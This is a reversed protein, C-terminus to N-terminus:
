TRTSLIARAIELLIQPDKKWQIIDLAGNIDGKRARIIAHLKDISSKDGAETFLNRMMVIAQDSVQDPNNLMAQTINTVASEGYSLKRVNYRLTKVVDEFMGLMAQAIAITGLDMSRRGEDALVEVESFVAMLRDKAGDVDGLKHLAKAADIQALRVRYRETVRLSLTDIDIVMQPVLDNLGAKSQCLVIYGYGLLKQRDEEEREATRRAESILSIALDRNEAKVAAEVIDCLASVKTLGHLRDVFAKATNWRKALAEERVVNQIALSKQWGSIAEISHKARSTENLRSWMGAIDALSYDRHDLMFRSLESDPISSLRSWQYDEQSISKEDGSFSILKTEYERLLVNVENRHGALLLKDILHRNANWFSIKPSIKGVITQATVFARRAEEPRKAESLLAAADTFVVARIHPDISESEVERLAMLIFCYADATEACRKLDLNENGTCSARANVFPIEGKESVAQFFIQADAICNVKNQASFCVGETDALLKKDCDARPTMCDDYCMDHAQCVANFSYGGRVAQEVELFQLGLRHYWKSGCKTVLSTARAGGEMVATVIKNIQAETIQSVVHASSKAMFSMFEKSFEPKSVIERVIEHVQPNGLSKTVKRDIESKLTKGGLANIPAQSFLMETLKEAVLKKTASSLGSDSTEVAFDTMDFITDVMRSGVPGMVVSSGYIVAAKSGEYIGEALKTAADINGLFTETAAKDALYFQQEYRLAAELLHNAMNANNGMVANKAHLLNIEVMVAYEVSSQYFNDYAVRLDRTGLINATMETWVGVVKGRASSTEYLYDSTKPARALAKDIRETVVKAVEQDEAGSSAVPLSSSIPIARAFHPLEKRAGSPPIDAATIGDLNYGSALAVLHTNDRLVYAIVCGRSGCYGSKSIVVFLVDSPDILDQTNAPFQVARITWNATECGVLCQTDEFEHRLAQLEREEFMLDANAIGASLAVLVAVVRLLALM